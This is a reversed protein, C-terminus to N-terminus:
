FYEETLEIGTGDMFVPVYGKAQKEYELVSGVIKAAQSRSV